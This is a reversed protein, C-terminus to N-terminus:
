IREGCESCRPEPIGRLIYGCKRCLTEREYDRKPPFYCTVLGYACVPAIQILVLPIEGIWIDAVPFGGIHAFVGEILLLDGVAGAAVAILARWFWHM